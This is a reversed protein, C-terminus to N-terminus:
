LRLLMDLHASLTPVSAIKLGKPMKEGLRRYERSLRFLLEAKEVEPAKRQHACASPPSTVSRGRAPVSSGPSGEPLYWEERLPKQPEEVRPRGFCCCM